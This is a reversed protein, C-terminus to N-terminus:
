PRRGRVRLLFRALPLCVALKLPLLLSDLASAVGFYTGERVWNIQSTSSSSSSSSSAVAASSTDGELKARVNQVFESDRGLCQELPLVIDVGTRLGLYMSTISVFTTGGYALVGAKGYQELFKKASFSM